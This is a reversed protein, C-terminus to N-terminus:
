LASAENEGYLGVECLPFWSKVREFDAPYNQKISQLWQKGFHVTNLGNVRYQDSLPLQHKQIYSLVESKTWEALPYFRMRKEDISGSKKIMARRIVSDAIREGGALWKCGTQERIYNDIEIPRVIPVSLDYPRYLGYRLMASLDFHPVRICDIHYLREFHRIIKEQYTLRPVYYMFAMNVTHFYRRCLDLTVVSDKGGSFMVTVTDTIKSQVTISNLLNRM